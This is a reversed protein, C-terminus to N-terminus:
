PHWHGEFCHRMEHGIIHLTTEPGTIINCVIIGGQQQQTSCALVERGPKSGARECEGQVDEVVTWTVVSKTTKNNVIFPNEPRDYWPFANEKIPTYKFEAAAPNCMLMVLLLFRKM